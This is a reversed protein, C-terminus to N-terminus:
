NPTTVVSPPDTGARRALFDTEEPENDRGRFVDLGAQYTEPDRPASTELLLEAVGTEAGTFAFGARYLAQYAFANNVAIRCREYGRESARDTVFAALRPGIGEGRRDVRVSIYRLWLTTEDTRDENFAVAAVTERGGNATEAVDDDQDVRERAVAKGTNTMVFKGAYSFREHDLRLQPGDPPWGLVAYEM